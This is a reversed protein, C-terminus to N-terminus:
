DKVVVRKDLPLYTKDAVPGNPMGFPMQALLKWTAPVEFERRVAEDVLPNYHQLSAGINQQAFVTWILYELMGNSQYAWLPFNEKYAPFKQQLNEVTAWDEFFLLTGYAAAFSNIKDQTASFNEPPVVKKLAEAVLQWFLKHKKELLVVVRASQSNFASPTQKVAEQVLAVVEQASVPIKDTLGYCSRRKAAENLLTM